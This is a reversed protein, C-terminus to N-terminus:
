APSTAPSTGPQAAFGVSIVKMPANAPSAGDVLLEWRSLGSEDEDIKGFGLRAYHDVVLTNRDTPRYVGVLRHIDAARAHTLIERLVMHEV